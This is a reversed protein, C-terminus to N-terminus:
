MKGRTFAWPLEGARAITHPGWYIKPARCRPDVDVSVSMKRMTSWKNVWKFGINVLHARIINQNNLGRIIYQMQPSSLILM